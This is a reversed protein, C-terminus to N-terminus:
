ISETGGGPLDGDYFPIYDVLTTLPIGLRAAANDGIQSMTVSRGMFCDNFAIVRSGGTKQYCIKLASENAMCGSNTLFCHKVKSTRSAENLLLESIEISDLNAQLNGQQVTDALAGRVAAALIDPDSHGFMHVGIGNIMDWKVSGDALEVLAGNGIGSGVYPYLPPKGRVEASRQLFGKYTEILVKRPPRAATISAQAEIVERVVADIADNLAPSSALTTGATLERTSIMTM